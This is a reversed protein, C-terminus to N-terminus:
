TIMMQRREKELIYAVNGTSRPMFGKFDKIKEFFTSRYLHM